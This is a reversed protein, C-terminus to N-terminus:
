NIAKKLAESPTFKPAKSAPIDIPEGTKPNRGKRAKRESISFSGFGIITVKDGKRLADKIGELFAELLESAESKTINVDKAARDILEGKTV